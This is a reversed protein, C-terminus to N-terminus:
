SIDEPNLGHIECLRAMAFNINDAAVEYEAAPATIELFESLYIDLHERILVLHDRPDNDICAAREHAIVNANADAQRSDGAEGVVLGSEDYIEITM